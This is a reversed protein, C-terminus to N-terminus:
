QCLAAGLCAAGEAERLNFAHTARQHLQRSRRCNMRITLMLPPSLCVPTSSWSIKRPGGKDELTGTKDQSEEVECGLWSLAVELEVDSSSAVAKYFRGGEM